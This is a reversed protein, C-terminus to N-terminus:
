MVGHLEETVTFAIERGIGKLRVETDLRSHRVRYKVYRSSCTVSM